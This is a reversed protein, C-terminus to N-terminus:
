AIFKSEFVARQEYSLRKLDPVQRALVEPDIHPPPSIYDAFMLKQSVVTQDVYLSDNACAAFAVEDTPCAMLRQVKVEEAKIGPRHMRGICQEATDAQRPIQAFLMDGDGVYQLNHGERYSTMQLVFISGKNNKEDLIQRAVDPDTASGNIVKRKTDKRLIEVIWERMAHNHCWIICGKNLKVAWAAAQKAKFDCVRVPVSIREPRGEFDADRMLSWLKYMEQGVKAHGNRFMWNGITMPTDLGPEGFEEIWIKLRKHYVERKDHHQKARRILDKAEVPSIDRARAIDDPDPWIRKNYFGSALEYRWKWALLAHPLEEGTPTILCSELTKIHEVLEKGEKDAPIEGRLFDVSLSAGVDIDGAVTVGPCTELRLNYARRFGSRSQEIKEEPFKERAWRILTGLTSANPDSEAMVDIADDWGHAEQGILPVPSGQKLTRVILHYYDRIGKTTFTGSLPVFEVPKTEGLEDVAKLWRRTSAAGVNKLKHAEDMVYLTFGMASLLDYGDEVALFSYPFVFLGHRQSKAINNREKKSLRYMNHVPMNFVIQKRAKALDHMTKPVLKPPVMLAVREHERENYGISACLLSTITKGGGVGIPGFAAGKERYDKSVSVQPIWLEQGNRRAPALVFEETFEARQEETVGWDIPLAMIRQMDGTGEAKASVGPEYRKMKTQSVAGTVGRAKMRDSLSM